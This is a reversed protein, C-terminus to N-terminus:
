KRTRGGSAVKAAEQRLGSLCSPPWFSAEPTSKPLWKGEFVLITPSKKTAELAETQSVNKQSNEARRQQLNRVRQPTRWFRASAKRGVIGITKWSKEIDAEEGPAPCALLFSVFVLALIRDLLADFILLM